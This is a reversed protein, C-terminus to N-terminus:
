LGALRACNVCIVDGCISEFQHGAANECDHDIGFPDAPTSWVDRMEDMLAEYQDSTPRTVYERMRAAMIALDDLQQATMGAGM